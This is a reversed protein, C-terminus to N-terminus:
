KSIDKIFYYLALAVSVITLVLTWWKFGTEFYSDLWKGGLAGLVPRQGQLVHRFRLAHPHVKGQM